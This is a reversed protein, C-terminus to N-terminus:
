LRECVGFALCYPPYEKSVSRTQWHSALRSVLPRTWRFREWVLQAVLTRFDGLPTIDFHAAHLRGPDCPRPGRDADHSGPRLYTRTYILRGGPKVCRLANALALGPADLLHAVDIMTVVDFRTELHAPLAYVSAVVDVGPGDEVDLITWSSRPRPRWTGRRHRGGIDLGREGVALCPVTATLWRSVAQKYPSLSM